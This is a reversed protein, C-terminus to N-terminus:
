PTCTWTGQYGISEWVTAATAIMGIYDGAAGGSVLDEGQACQTKTTPNWAYHTAPVAVTIVGTTPGTDGYGNKVLLQMGAIATAPLAIALATAETTHKNIIVHSMKGATCADESGDTTLTVNVLGDVVGAAIITGGANINGGGIGVSTAATGFATAVILGGTISSAASTADLIGLTHNRTITANAGQIPPTLQTNFADTFVATAGSGSYTPGAFVREAQVAVTGPAWQRTGTAMTVGASATSATIATDTPTNITWYAATSANRAPPTHTVIGTFGIAGPGITVAGTSTLFTGTSGSFNNSGSGSATLGGTVVQTTNAWSTTASAGTFTNAADIRALTASSGPFTYVASATGTFTSSGATFTHGNITTASLGTTTLLGTNSNFTLTTPHAKLPVNGAVNTTLFPIFCTTDTSEQLMSVNTANTITGTFVSAAVTGGFVAGATYTNNFLIGGYATIVNTGDFYMDADGGNLTSSYVNMRANFTTTSTAAAGWDL